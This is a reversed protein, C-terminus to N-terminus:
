LHTMLFPSSHSFARIFLSGIKPWQNRFFEESSEKFRGQFDRWVDTQKEMETAWRVSSMCMRSVRSGCLSIVSVREKPWASVEWTKFGTFTRAFVVSVSFCVWLSVLALSIKARLHPTQRLHRGGYPSLHHPVPKACLSVNNPVQAFLVAWRLETVRQQRIAISGEGEGSVCVCVCVCM